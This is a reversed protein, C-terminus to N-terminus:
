HATAQNGDEMLGIPWGFDKLCGWLGGQSGQSCRVSDEGLSGLILPRQSKLYAKFGCLLGM